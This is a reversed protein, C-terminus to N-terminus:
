TSSQAQSLQWQQWWQVCRRALAGTSDVCDKRLESQTADLALPTETCALLVASAGRALLAAVSRFLM